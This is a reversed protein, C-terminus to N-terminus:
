QQQPPKHQCHNRSTFLIAETTPKKNTEKPNKQKNIEKPKQKNTQKNNKNFRLRAQGDEGLWEEDFNFNYPNM